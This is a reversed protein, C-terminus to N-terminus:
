KKSTGWEGVAGKNNGMIVTGEQRGDHLVRKKSTKMSAQKSTQKSAQQSPQKTPQNSENM